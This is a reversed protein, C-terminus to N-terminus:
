HMTKLFIIGLIVLVVALSLAIITNIGINYNISFRKKYPIKNDKLFRRLMRYEYETIKFTYYIKKRTNPSSKKFLKDLFM